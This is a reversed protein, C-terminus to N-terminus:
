FAILGINRDHCINREALKVKRILNTRQPLRTRYSTAHQTTVELIPALLKFFLKCRTELSHYRSQLARESALAEGIYSSDPTIYTGGLGAWQSAGM